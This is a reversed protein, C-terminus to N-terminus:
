DGRWDGDEIICLWRGEVADKEVAMRTHLLMKM